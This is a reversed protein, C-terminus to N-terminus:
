FVGDVSASAVSGMWSGGNDSVLVLVLVLVLVVLVLWWGDVRCLVMLWARSVRLLM